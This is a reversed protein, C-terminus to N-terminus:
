NLLAEHEAKLADIEDLLRFGAENREEDFAKDALRELDAIRQTIFEPLLGAWEDRNERNIEEATFDFDFLNTPFPKTIM